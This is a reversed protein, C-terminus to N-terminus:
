SSLKYGKSKIVNNTGGLFKGKTAMVNSLHPDRVGAIAILTHGAGIFPFMWLPNLDYLAIFIFVIPMQLGFNAVAPLFPAWFLKPPMAVSRYIVERM